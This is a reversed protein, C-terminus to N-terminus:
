GHTGCCDIAPSVSSARRERPVTAAIVPGLHEWGFHYVVHGLATLARDRANDQRARGNVRHHGGDMEVILLRGDGLEWVLDCRAVFQGDEDLVVRQLDDPPVGHGLCVLRAATELPSEARGDALAIQQRLTQAHRAGTLAEALHPLDTPVLMKRHLASDVVAVARRRDLGPLAQRVAWLPGAVLVGDVTLTKPHGVVDDRRSLRRERVGPRPRLPGGSSLVFEPVYQLPVGEIRHMALPAAGILICGPGGALAAVLARQRAREPWDDRTVAQPTTMLVGRTVLHWRGRSVLRGIQGRSLGSTLRQDRGVLGLQRAAIETVLPPVAIPRNRVPARSVIPATVIALPDTTSM